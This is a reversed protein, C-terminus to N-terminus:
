VTGRKFIRPIQNQLKRLSSSAGYGPLPAITALITIAEVRTIIMAM